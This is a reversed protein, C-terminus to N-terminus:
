LGSDVLCVFLAQIVVTQKPLGTVLSQKGRGREEVIETWGDIGM